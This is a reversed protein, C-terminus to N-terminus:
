HSCTKHQVPKAFALKSFHDVATLIFRNGKTTCSLPGVTDIVILEDPVSSTITHFNSNPVIRSAKLCIQCGAVYKHVDTYLGSWSFKKSLNYIMNSASEHGLNLHYNELLRKKVADDIILSRSPNSIANVM